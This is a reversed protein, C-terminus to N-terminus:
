FVIQVVNDDSIYSEEPDIAGDDGYIQFLDDDTLIIYESSLVSSASTEEYDYDKDYSDWDFDEFYLEPDDEATWTLVFPIDELTNSQGM